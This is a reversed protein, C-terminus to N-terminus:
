RAHAPISLKPRPMPHRGAAQDRWPDVHWFSLLKARIPNTGAVIILQEDAPMRHIEDPSMLPQGRESVTTSPLQTDNHGLDGGINKVTKQGMMESLQKATDHNTIKFFQKVEAQSFITSAVNKGYIEEIHAMEQVFMWLRVGLGRLATLSEALSSMKGMNAFEDLMFLVSGRGRARGVDTIARHTLLGLWAGHTAM